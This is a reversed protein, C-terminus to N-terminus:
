VYRRLRRRLHCPRGGGACSIGEKLVTASALADLGEYDSGSVVFLEAPGRSLISKKMKPAVAYNGGVTLASFHAGDSQATLRAAAEIANLDYPSVEYEAGSFNLSGDSNFQISDESPIIKCCVIIKM